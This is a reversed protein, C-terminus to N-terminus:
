EADQFQRLLEQDQETSARILRALDAEVTVFEEFAKLLKVDALVDAHHGAAPLDGYSRTRSAVDALQEAISRYVTALEVYADREAQGSQDGADIAPIHADLNQALANLDEAMKAPVAAHQALGKGCTWPEDRPLNQELDTM